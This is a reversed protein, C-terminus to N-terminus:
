GKARCSLELPALSLFQSITSSGLTVEEKQWKKHKGGDGDSLRKHKRSQATASSKFRAKIRNSEASSKTTTEEEKKAIDKMKYARLEYDFLSVGGVGVGGMRCHSNADATSKKACAATM